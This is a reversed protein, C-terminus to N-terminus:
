AMPQKEPQQDEGRGCHQANDSRERGKSTLHAGFGKTQRQAGRDCDIIMPRAPNTRDGRMSASHRIAAKRKSEDRGTEEAPIISSVDNVRRSIAQLRCSRTHCRRWM